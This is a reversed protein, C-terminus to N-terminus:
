PQHPTTEKPEPVDLSLKSSVIDALIEGFLINTIENPHATDVTFYFLPAKELAEKGFKAEYKSLYPAFRPDNLVEDKNKSVLDQVLFYQHVVTVGNEQAVNDLAKRYSLPLPWQEILVMQAGESKFLNCLQDINDMYQPIPVRLRYESLDGKSKEGSVVMLPKVVTEYYWAFYLFGNLLVSKHIVATTKEIIGQDIAKWSGPRGRLLENDGKLSIPGGARIWIVQSDNIGFGAIVLDPKLSKLKRDALILGQRTSYGPTGANIVKFKKEPFRANLENELLVPWTYPSDLGYGYTYSDGMCIVLFDYDAAARPQKENKRFGSPGIEVHYTHKCDESGILCTKLLPVDESAGAKLRVILYPDPEFVKTFRLSPMFLVRVLLELLLFGLLVSIFLKLVLGSRKKPNVDAKSM